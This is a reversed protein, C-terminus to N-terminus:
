TGRQYNLRRAPTEVESGRSCTSGGSGHTLPTKKALRYEDGHALRPPLEAIPVWAVHTVEHDNAATLEGAIVSNGPPTITVAWSRQNRSLTAVWM